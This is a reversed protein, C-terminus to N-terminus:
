ASYGTVTVKTVVSNAIFCNHHAADHLKAMEERSPQNDGSFSIQPNLRVEIMAMKGEANKGLIGVADDMYSDIIYKKQSAIALFTLMHCASLSAVFAQEPDVLKEDGLFEKAASGEVVVGHGYDWTYDRNYNKYSFDDSTREWNVTVHHESM